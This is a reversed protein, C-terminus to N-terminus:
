QQKEMAKQEALLQERLELSNWGANSETLVAKLPISARAARLADLFASLLPKPFHALVLMEEPFAGEDYNADFRDSVGCLAGIPQLYDQPQVTKVFVHFKVADVRLKGAKKGALNYCLIMPQAM